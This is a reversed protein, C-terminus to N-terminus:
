LILVFIRSYVFYQLSFIQLFILRFKAHVTSYLIVSGSGPRMGGEGVTHCYTHIVWTYRFLLFDMGSVVTAGRTDSISVCCGLGAAFGLFTIM